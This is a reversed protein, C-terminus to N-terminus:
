QAAASRQKSLENAEALLREAAVRQKDQATATARVGLRVRYAGSLTASGLARITFRYDGSAAAEDSLSELGGRTLNVDVAQKGDPAILTVVVDIGKQELVIRLFQGAQLTIQYTHSEGGTLEREVTQGPELQRIVDKTQAFGTLSLCLLLSLLCVQKTM